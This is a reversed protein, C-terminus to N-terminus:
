DTDASLHSVADSPRSHLMTSGKGDIFDNSTQSWYGKPGLDPPTSNLPAHAALNRPGHPCAIEPFPVSDIFQRSLDDTSVRARRLPQLLLERRRILGAAARQFHESAPLGAPTYDHTFSPGLPLSTSSVKIKWSQEAVPQLEFYERVTVGRREAQGTNSAITCSQDGFEAVFRRPSWEKELHKTLDIDVVM